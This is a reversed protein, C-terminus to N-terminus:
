TDGRSRRESRLQSAVIEEMIIRLVVKGAVWVVVYMALAAGIARASCTLVPNDGAVGVLVTAFFTVVAMVGALKKLNKAAM